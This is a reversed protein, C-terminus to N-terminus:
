NRLNLKSELRKKQDELREARMEKEARLKYYQRLNEAEWMQRWVIAVVAAILALTVILIVKTMAEGKEGSGRKEHQDFLKALDSRKAARPHRNRLNRALRVADGRRAKALDTIREDLKVFKSIANYDLGQFRVKGLQTVSAKAENYHGEDLRIGLVLLASEHEAAKNKWIRVKEIASQVEHVFGAPIDNATLSSIESPSRPVVVQGWRKAFENARIPNKGISLDELRAQEALEDLLVGEPAAQAPLSSAHQHLDFELQVAFSEMKVQLAALDAPSPLQVSTPDPAAACIQKVQMGLREAGHMWAQLEAWKARTLDLPNGGPFHRPVLDKALNELISLEKIDHLDSLSGSRSRVLDLKSMLVAMTYDRRLGQPSDKFHGRTELNNFEAGVEAMMVRLLRVAEREDKESQQKLKELELRQKEIELRQAETNAVAAQQRLFAESVKLQQARQSYALLTTAMFVHGANDRINDEVADHFNWEDSM